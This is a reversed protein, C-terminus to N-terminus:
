KWNNGSLYNIIEICIYINLKWNPSISSILRAVDYRSNYSHWYVIALKKEKKKMLLGYAHFIWRFSKVKAFVIVYLLRFVRSCNPWCKREGSIFDCHFYSQFSSFQQFFFFFFLLLVRVIREMKTWVLKIYLGIRKGMPFINFFDSLLPYNSTDARSIFYLWREDYAEGRSFLFKRGIIIIIISSDGNKWTVNSIIM